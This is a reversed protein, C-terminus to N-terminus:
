PRHAAGPLPAKLFKGTDVLLSQILGVIQARSDALPAKRGSERAYLAELGECPPFSRRAIEDAALDGLVHRAAEGLVCGRWLTFAFAPRVSDSPMRWLIRGSYRDSVARGQADRAPRFRAREMLLRCTATDLNISGSSATVLCDTPTGDVGIELRFGVNGQEFDRIAQAPYDQDSFLTALGQEARARTPGGASAPAPVFAALCLAALPAIRIM